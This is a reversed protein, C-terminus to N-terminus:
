HCGQIGPVLFCQTLVVVVVVVFYIFFIWTFVGQPHSKAAAVSRDPTSVVTTAVLASVAKKSENETFYFFILLIQSFLRSFNSLGLKRVSILGPM